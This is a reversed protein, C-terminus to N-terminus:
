YFSQAKRKQGYGVTVGNNKNLYVMIKKQAASLLITGKFLEPNTRLICGNM